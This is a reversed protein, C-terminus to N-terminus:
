ANQPAKYDAYAKIASLCASIDDPSMTNKARRRFEREREAETGDPGILKDVTTLSAAYSEAAKNTFGRQRILYSKFDPM